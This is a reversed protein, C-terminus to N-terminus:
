SKAIIASCFPCLTMVDRNKDRELIYSSLIENQYSTEHLQAVHASGNVIFPICIM